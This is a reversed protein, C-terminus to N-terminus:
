WEIFFGGNEIFGLYFGFSRLCSHSLLISFTYLNKSNNIFLKSFNGFKDIVHEVVIYVKCSYVCLIVKALMNLLTKNVIGSSLPLPSPERHIASTEKEFNGPNSFFDRLVALERGNEILEIHLELATLLLRSKILNEAVDNWNIDLLHRYSAAEESIEEDAM